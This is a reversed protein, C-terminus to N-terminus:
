YAHRDRQSRSRENTAHDASPSDHSEAAGTCSGLRGHSRTWTPLQPEGISVGSPHSTRVWPTPGIRVYVIPAISRSRSSGSRTSAVSGAGSIVGAPSSRLPYTGFTTYLQPLRM